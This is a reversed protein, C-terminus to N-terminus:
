LLCRRKVNILKITKINIESHYKNVIELESDAFVLRDIEKDISSDFYTVLYEKM